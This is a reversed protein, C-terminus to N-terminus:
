NTYKRYQFSYEDIFFAGGTISLGVIPQLRFVFYLLWMLVLTPIVLLVAYFAWFKHWKKSNLLYPSIDGYIRAM